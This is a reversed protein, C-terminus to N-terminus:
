LHCGKQARVRQLQDEPYCCGQGDDCIGMESPCRPAFSCKCRTCDSSDQKYPYVCNACTETTETECGCNGDPQQGESCETQTNITCLGTTKECAKCGECNKGACRDKERCGCNGDEEWGSPCPNPNQTNITCLGTDKDCQTCGSCVVGECDPGQTKICGCNGDPEYGDDCDDQTNITCFGTKKDCAKCGVCTKNKCLDEDEEEEEDEDDDDDDGGNGGGGGGGGGGNGGGTNGGGGNDPASPQPNLPNFPNFGDPLCICHGSGIGASFFGLPCAPCVCNGCSGDPVENGTCRLNCECACTSSNLTWGHGYNLRCTRGSIGCFCSCTSVNLVYNGTCTRTCSRKCRFSTQGLWSSPEKAYGANCTCNDQKIVATRGSNQTTARHCTGWTNPTNPDNDHDDYIQISDWKVGSGSSNAPCSVPTIDSLACSKRSVM